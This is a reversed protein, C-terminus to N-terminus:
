KRFQLPTGQIKGLFRFRNHSLTCNYSLNLYHEVATTSDRAILNRLLVLLLNILFVLTKSIYCIFLLTIIHIFICLFSSDVHYSTFVFIISTKAILSILVTLLCFRLQFFLLSPSTPVGLHSNERFGVNKTWDFNENASREFFFNDGFLFLFFGYDAGSSGKRQNKLPTHKVVIQGALIKTRDM